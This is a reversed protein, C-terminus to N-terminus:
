ARHPRRVPNCEALPNRFFFLETKDATYISILLGIMNDRTFKYSTLLKHIARNEFYVHPGYQVGPLLNIEALKHIVTTKTNFLEAVRWAPLLCAQWPQLSRYDNNSVYM